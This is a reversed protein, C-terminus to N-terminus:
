LEASKSELVERTPDSVHKLNRALGDVRDTRWSETSLDRAAPVPQPISSLHRLKRVRRRLRKRRKLVRTLLLVVGILFMLAVAVGVYTDSPDASSRAGDASRTSSAAPSPSTHKRPLSIVSVKLTDM